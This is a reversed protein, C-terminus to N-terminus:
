TLTSVADEQKENKKKTPIVVDEDTNKSALWSIINFQMISKLSAVFMNGTTRYSDLPKSSNNSERVNQSTKSKQYQNKLSM